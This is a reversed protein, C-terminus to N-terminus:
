PDPSFTGHPDFAEERLIKKLEDRVLERLLNLIPTNVSVGTRLQELARGVDDAILSKIGCSNCRLSYPANNSYVMPLDADFCYIVSHPKINVFCEKCSVMNVYHPPDYIFATLNM